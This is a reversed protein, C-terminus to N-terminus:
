SYHVPQAQDVEKSAKNDHGQTERKQIADAQKINKCRSQLIIATATQCSVYYKLNEFIQGDVTKPKTNVRPVRHGELFRISQNGNFNCPGIKDEDTAKDERDRQKNTKAKKQKSEQWFM